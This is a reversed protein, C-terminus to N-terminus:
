DMSHLPFQGKRLLMILRFQSVNFHKEPKDYSKDVQEHTAFTELSMDFSTSSLLTALRPVREGSSGRRASIITITVRAPTAITNKRIMTFRTM